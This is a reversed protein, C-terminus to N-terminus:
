RRAMIDLAPQSERPAGTEALTTNRLQEMGMPSELCDVSRKECSYLKIRTLNHAQVLSHTFLNPRSKGALDQSGISTISILISCCRFSIVPFRSIGSFVRTGATDDPVIGAHSFGPTIRGSISGSEGEHSALLSVPRDTGPLRSALWCGLWYSVKRANFYGILHLVGSGSGRVAVCFSGRLRKTEANEDVRSGPAACRQPRMSATVVYALLPRSQAAVRARSWGGKMCLVPRINRATRRGTCTRAAARLSGDPTLRVTIRVGTPTRWGGPTNASYPSSPPEAGPSLSAASKSGCLCAAFGQRDELGQQAARGLVEHSWRCALSIDYTRFLAEQSNLTSIGGAEDKGPSREEDKPEQYFPLPQFSSFTQNCLLPREESIAVLPQNRAFDERRGAHPTWFSFGEQADVRALDGDTDRTAFHSDHRVIGRTLPNERPDGSKGARANRRQEMRLRNLLLTKFASSLSRLLYPAAGSHPSPPFPLDGLLGASGVANDPVIGVQSFGTVRGLISGPKGQYSALTCSFIWSNRLISICLLISRTSVVLSASFTPISSSDNLLLSSMLLSQDVVCFKRGFGLAFLTHASSCLRATPSFILFKQCPLFFFVVLLRSNMATWLHGCKHILFNDWLNQFMLLQWAYRCQMDTERVDMNLDEISRPTRYISTDKLRTGIATIEREFHVTKMRLKSRSIKEAASRNATTYGRGLRGVDHFVNGVVEVSTLCASRENVFFFAHYRSFEGSTPDRIDGVGRLVPTAAATALLNSQEGKGWPSGTKALAFRGPRHRQNAPKERSVGMEGVRANWVISWERRTKGEDVRLVENNVAM